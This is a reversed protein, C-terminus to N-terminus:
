QRYNYSPPRETNAPHEESSSGQPAYDDQLINKPPLVNLAGGEHPDSLQYTEERQEYLRPNSKEMGVGYGCEKMAVKIEESNRQAPDIMKKMGEEGLKEQLCKNIRESDGTLRNKPITSLEGSNRAKSFEQKCSEMAAKVEASSTNLTKNLIQKKAEPGLKRGVCEAMQEMQRRQIEFQPQKPNLDNKQMQQEDQEQAQRSHLEFCARMKEALDLGPPADGLKIKELADKGVTVELCAETKPSVKFEQRIYERMKPKHKEFCERVGKGVETDPAFEGSEMKNLVVSDLSSELCDRVEQPMQKLGVRMHSMGQKIDREAGQEIFGREKAFVLCEDHHEPANCFSECEEKGKCEGPGTQGKTNKIKDAETLSLGGYKVMFDVCERRNEERHCYNECAEKSKCAGPTEGRKMLPLFKKVKQAEEPKLFGNKEAFDLCVEANNPNDCYTKCEGSTKCGGPTNKEKFVQSFKKVRQIEEKPLLQHKEAFAVCEEVYDSNECFTKCSQVDTCGGPGGQKIAFFFKENREKEKKSILGYKAAFKTCNEINETKNCFAKCEVRSECNGLEAVPFIIKAEAGSGRSLIEEARVFLFVSFIFVSALVIKIFKNMLLYKCCPLSYKRHHALRVCGYINAYRSALQRILERM